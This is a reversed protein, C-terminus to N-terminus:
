YDLWKKEKLKLLLKEALQQTPQSSDLVLWKNSNLQAQKLYSERVRNHFDDAEREFRDHEVGTADTRGKLRKRSEEVTLDLLVTLDPSLNNTAFDNLWNIASSDINRGGSQFAVTSATFRDCIVWKQTELAPRIVKEVHQARSAEYLLLETRPVPSEKETRILLHRIEEALETGGPERTTIFSIKQKELALCLAKILSSKGAGDLGEFVIFPM